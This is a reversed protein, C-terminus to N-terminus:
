RPFYHSRGHGDVTNGRGDTEGRRVGRRALQCSIVDCQFGVAVVYDIDVPRRLIYISTYCVSTEMSRPM